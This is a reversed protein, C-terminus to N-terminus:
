QTTIGWKTHIYDRFQSRQGTTLAGSYIAFEGIRGDMFSGTATGSNDVVAGIGLHATGNNQIDGLTGSSSTTTNTQDTNNVRFTPRDRGDNTGVSGDYICSLFYSTSTSLATNGRVTRANGSALTQYAELTIKNTNELALIVQRSTSMYKAVLAEDNLSDFNGVLFISFKSSTGGLVTGLINGFDMFHTSGNFDVVPLSNISNTAVVPQALATGQTANNANGSKDVWTSVATGNSPNNATSFDGNIDTADLWVKLGPLSRPSFGGFFTTPYTFM